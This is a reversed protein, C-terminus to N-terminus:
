PGAQLSSCQEFALEMLKERARKSYVVERTHEDLVEAVAIPVNLFRPDDEQTFREFYDALEKILITEAVAEAHEQNWQSCVFGDASTFRSSSRLWVTFDAM